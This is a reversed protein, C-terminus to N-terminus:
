EPLPQGKTEPCFWIVVLGVLYILSVVACMEAFSGHFVATVLGNMVLVGVATLIRGANFAFGQAAARLRTPFLEPLYLPLWGYFGATVAGVVFVWGLFPGGFVQHTRFLYACAGLSLLCMLAYTLRRNTAQALLAAIMAGVVSGSGSWIQTWARTDPGKGDLSDAVMPLLQVSGWTGLLAVTALGAALLTRKRLAPSFVESFRAAPAKAAANQWSKSEPVFLRLLFTLLAPAAGLMMLMRWGGNATLTSVSESGLGLESLGAGLDKVYLGAVAVLVLGINLAGGILGALLPRFRTPWVEMVLAVGLAWEGGMGLASCFRLAALTYADHAFGCAGSFLSYTLVTWTMARVRGFRDGLWGFVAGGCAAGLLFAATIVGNWWPRQAADAILEALAPKGVLPFLGMEVGDFMWGLFAAILALM